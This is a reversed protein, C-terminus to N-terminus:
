SEEELELRTKMARIANMVANHKSIDGYLKRYLEVFENVEVSEDPTIQITSFVRRTVVQNRSPRATESHNSQTAMM